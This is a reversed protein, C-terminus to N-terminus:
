WTTAVEVNIWVTGFTMRWIAAWYHLTAGEAETIQQEIVAPLEVMWWTQPTAPFGQTTPGATCTAVEDATAPRVPGISWGLGRSLMDNADDADKPPDGDCTINVLRLKM